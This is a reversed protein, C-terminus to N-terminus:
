VKEIRKYSTYGNKAKTNVKFIVYSQPQLKIEMVGASVHLKDANGLIIDFLAYNMIDSDDLLVIDSVENDQVNMMIFVDDEINEGRRVFGFISESIFTHFNGVRLTEHKKRLQILTTVLKKIDNKDNDLHWAMPARNEPDTDGKMGLETGYYLNPCGPLTFLLILALVQTPQTNFVHALRPVDHNDVVTWSTLIKEIGTDLIVKDFMASITKVPTQQLLLKSILERFTFNMVGDMSKAWLDPYNPIEGVICSMPNVQHSYKTIESLYQYGIDFAVDLRWGDVGLNLYSQIVSDKKKYLYNQVDEHELNLEVLSPVNMWLRVGESYTENFDFYHRYKSNKNSIADQYMPSAIGIHNFVGDLMIKMDKDHVNQILKKLDDLTGYEESIKLYDSADYKHNSVAEPIPNLYLVDVGLSQIYDMKNNLSPIDGGWFELEHEHYGKKQDYPKSVPLTDWSLITRPYQYLHQKSEIDKSPYFRDVMVQYVVAGVRWDKLRYKIPTRM